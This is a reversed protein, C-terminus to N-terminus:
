GPLVNPLTGMDCAGPVNSRGRLPNVGTSPKGIEECLMALTALTLVM